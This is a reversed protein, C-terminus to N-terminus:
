PSGLLITVEGTGTTTVALDLIGDGNFDDVSVHGAGAGAATVSFEQFNGYGDGRLMMVSGDGESVVIVDSVGDGNFDGAVVEGALAGAGVPTFPLFTGDGGGRLFSVSSTLASTAVVDLVTDGDFDGVDLWSCDIGVPSDFRVSFDGNGDGLLATVSGAPTNATLLDAYADGNVYAVHVFVPQEGTAFAAMNWFTEDGFGYLVVVQANTTDTVVLDVTGDFLPDLQGSTVSAPSGGVYWDVRDAFGGVGDGDLISVTGDGSNTTVLERGGDGDLDVAIVAEPAAGTPYAGDFTFTGDGNGLFVSVASADSDVVAIDLIADDDLLATVSGQPNDGVPICSGLLFTGRATPVASRVTTTVSAGSANVARTVVWYTTGNDLGTVFLQTATVSAQQGQPLSSWNDSSVSPDAALFVEYGSAGAVPSWSAVLAGATGVASISEPAMPLPLGAHESSAPGDGAANAAHVVVYYPGGDILGTLQMATSSTGKTQIEGPVADVHAVIGPVLSYQVRYLTAGPVADWTILLEGGVSTPAVAVQSPAAPGGGGGAGGGGCATMTAMGLTLLAVCVISRTGM